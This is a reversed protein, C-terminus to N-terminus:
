MFTLLHVGHTPLKEGDNRENKVIVKKENRKRKKKKPHPYLEILICHIETNYFALISAPYLQFFLNLLSM